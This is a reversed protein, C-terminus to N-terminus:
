CSLLADMDLAHTSMNLGGLENRPWQEIPRDCYLEIGNEDPDNLYVAESVGHDSAGLLPVGAAKVRRIAAALNKRGPYLLAFHFLGTASSQAPEGGKSNWTNLAVHHHYGDFSLFAAQDGMKQTLSLGLVNCYFGISRDLDSVKLHVHGVRIGQEPLLDAEVQRNSHVDRLLM